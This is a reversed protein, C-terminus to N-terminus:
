APAGQADDDPLRELLGRLIKAEDIPDRSGLIEVFRERTKRDPWLDMEIELDCYEAYFDEHSRYSFDSLYGGSVGIFLNVVRMIEGSTLQSGDTPGGRSGWSRLPTISSCSARKSTATCPSPLPGADKTWSAASPCVTVSPRPPSARDSHTPVSCNPPSGPRPPREKLIRLVYDASLRHETVQGYRGRRRFAPGSDNGAADLWARWSRVPCTRPDSGYTIGILDGSGQQYTKSRRVQIRLRETVQSVDDVDLAVLESRRMAGAFGILILARDRTDRLGAGLNKVMEAVVNTVAASKPKTASGHTRAIGKMAEVVLISLAPNDYGAAQHVQSIAALRRRLTSFALTGACDAL